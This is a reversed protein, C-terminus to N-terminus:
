RREGHPSLPNFHHNFRWYLDPSHREGHPSLPNFNPRSAPPLAASRDRGMRPSHISISRGQQHAHCCCEDRGMRPSHISIQICACGAGPLADRGMRPSHISITNWCDPRARQAPREGHPSLPNFHFPHEWALYRTCDRGMRPSHISIMLGYDRQSYNQTEGWAPLTSQFGNAATVQTCGKPREGHPSLPNFDNKQSRLLIQLRPREGHPSLPNFNNDKTYQICNILTEGWAPLTSQFSVTQAARSSITHREGHPSLPNFHHHYHGCHPPLLTEGWARPSHISIAPTQPCRHALPREGHPSLPNFDGRDPHCHAGAYTEGWAPLTSQFSLVRNCFTIM